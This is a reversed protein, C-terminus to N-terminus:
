GGFYNGIYMGDPGNLAEVTLPDVGYSPLLKAILKNKAEVPIGPTMLFQMPSSYGPLAQQWEPPMAESGHLLLEKLAEKEANIQDGHNREFAQSADNVTRFTIGDQTKFNRMFAYLRVDRRGGLMLNTMLTANAEPPLNANPNASLVTQLEQIGNTNAMGREVAAKRIIDAAAAADSGDTLNILPVPQSGPPRMQNVTAAIDNLASAAMQRMGGFYGSRVFENSNAISSVARAQTLLSPIASLAATASASTTAEISDSLARAAQPNREAAAAERTILAAVDPNSFEGSPPPASAAKNQAESLIQADLQPNGTSYASPNKLYDWLQVPPRGDGFNILMMGNAGEFIREKDAGINERHTLAKNYAIDSRMKELGAYTNAAGGIGQLISSGLYRSPSSAMTGLGSLISLVADKNLSGDQNHFIQGIFNRESYPKGDTSRYGADTGGQYGGGVGGQYGGGAGGSTNAAGMSNSAAWPAEGYKDYLWKAMHDQLEPTMKEDGTLGMGEKIERLTTGVIGYAGMPTAVGYQKDPRTQAVYRGYPGNPDAFALAENVTMGTVNKGAFPGGDQNANNYIADYNGSSERQRVQPGFTGWGGSPAAPAPNALGGLPASPAAPAPASPQPQLTGLNAPGGPPVGPAASAPVSYPQRDRNTNAVGLDRNAAPAM